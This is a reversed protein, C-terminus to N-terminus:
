TFREFLNVYFVRWEARVKEPTFNQCYELANEAITQALKQNELLRIAASALERYDGKEVILGTKENELIYSIGGADTTVVPLGCAYAEIISLPMNDVVSSNLYIDARSYVDPMEEPSVRGIFHVNKLKLEPTLNKLKAEESGSGAVILSAEAYKEQIIRFARLVDSVQYHAEFNRNSLFVPHLTDRRRFKFKEAEVFNYIARARLGFKEFVDVLFQSPVIIEDFKRMTPLASRKWDRLHEEAEGTHYHLIIKKGFMKAAALPPLTSIIYSTTGSSFVHVLDARKIRTLLSLWFKLSVSLTRLIKVNQGFASPNNPIFDLEIEADGGFADVLRQAQISQGGLQRTSPAILAIKIKRQSSNKM